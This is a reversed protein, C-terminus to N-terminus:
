ERGSGGRNEKRSGRRQASEFLGAPDVILAIRGDGLIAAGLLGPIKRYNAEIAQVVVQHQGFVEDVLIAIRNGDDELVVAINRSADGAPSDVLDPLDYMPVLEDRVRLLPATEPGGYVGGRSVRLSERVASFPVLYISEGCRVLLGEVIALTLPLRIRVTTGEGKSSSLTVAGGLAEINRRVVDMGVGRGSVDTVEDATSFGPLFILDHIQDETLTRQPRILGRQAAKRRIQETDLGRGDDTVEVVVYGGQHRASVRIRGAEPKGHAKRVEAPEVGHGVANRILHMLPDAMGEAVTRDLETESGCLELVARKGTATELDAVLRPLRAFVTSVPVMRLALVREQLERVQAGLLNLAQERDSAPLAGASAQALVAQAVAIEGTLRVLKDIKEVPVRLTAANHERGAAGARVSGTPAANEEPSVGEGAARCLARLAAEVAPPREPGAAGPGDARLLGRLEDTASLLTGISGEDRALTGERMRDLVSEISHTLRVIPDLGFMGANGKISHAARFIRDLVDRDPASRLRLLGSELEDALESAEQFFADRFQNLDIEM